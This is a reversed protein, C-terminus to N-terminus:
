LWKNKLYIRFCCGVASKSPPATSMRTTWRSIRIDRRTAGGHVLGRAADEDNAAEAEDLATALDGKDYIWHLPQAAADAM